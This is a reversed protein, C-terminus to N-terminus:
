KRRKYQADIIYLNNVHSFTHTATINKDWNPEVKSVITESYEHENILNIKNLNFGYGYKYSSNQSPRYLIGDKEFIKGAPRSSKCDSVIPNQPHPRWNTSFLEKSSFLYLEDWSSVGDIEVCNAFMWWQDDKYQLTVDLLKVNEMLNMQFEWKDPFETCKYLEVTENEMSEPIMYLDNNHEFIFPYSLHYPTDLIVKPKEYHGKDDMILLSIHGKNTSYLFEELFIYYKNNRYLVHPDAWFRDKPPIIKKYRWLSSSFESKLDFLLIWQDFYRKNEIIHIVKEKVKSLTLKCLEINNPATYLRESYFSIEKNEREVKDFFVKEGTKHLESLKRTILLASKWFYNNANERYSFKVTSSYSRSLVKGNDLDESLIQLILGTEPWNQMSEWYGAPGGRNKYNDGHHFSWVGYKAVKLIDGRLIRFGLRIIIDLNYSQIKDIDETNIVDSHKNMKPLVNLKDIKYFLESSSIMESADPLSSVRDILKDYIVELFKRVLLYFFRGKSNKIKNFLNKNGVPPVTSNEIVLNIQAYESMEIRQLMEIAWAPLTGGDTLIGIKLKPATV